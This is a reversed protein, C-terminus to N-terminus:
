TRKQKENKSKIQSWTEHNYVFEEVKKNGEAVLVPITKSNDFILWYDSLPLFKRFLNQLGRQYRRKVVNVPINHGGKKVRLKIREIALGTSNLWFYVLIIKYGNKKCEKIKQEYIRTSLTTEFAFNTRSKILQNIRHLMVRGAGFAVKEPQFPSIGVAISDANVFERCNLMEPLMTYSATTKGAGNCGSIIYLTPM